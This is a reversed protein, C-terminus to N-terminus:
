ELALYGQVSPVVMPVIAVETPLVVAIVVPIVEAVVQVPVAGVAVQVPAVVALAVM